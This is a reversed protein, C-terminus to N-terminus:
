RQVEKQKQLAERLQKCRSPIVSKCDAWWPTEDEMQQNCDAAQVRIGYVEKTYAVLRPCNMMKCYRVKM